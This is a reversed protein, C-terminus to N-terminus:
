APALVAGEDGLARAQMRRMWAELAADEVGLERLITSAFDLGPPVSRDVVAEVGISRFRAAEAEDPVSAFRRLGPYRSRALPTVEQATEFVPATLATVRRGQLMVPEWLRPDALDGFAVAYGDAVAARLRAQDREIGFYGIDFASLADALTRGV